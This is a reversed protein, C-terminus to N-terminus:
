VAEMDGAYMRVGVSRGLIEINVLFMFEDEKQTLVGEAGRLPGRTVMIRKGEKLFPYVDYDKGSNLLVRLSHIEEQSIPTPHGPKASLLNVVGVTRLVNHFSEPVPEINVFLYGSFLPFDVWKKRDKWQRLKRVVPLFTEVEKKVLENQAIFEHRSKVYLAYWNNMIKEEASLSCNGHWLVKPKSQELDSRESL